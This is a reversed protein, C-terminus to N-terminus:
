AYDTPSPWQAPPLQEVPTGPRIAELLVAGKASALVAPVRGSPAFQRLMAVEEALAYADPALKMVSEGMPGTCSVSVSSVGSAFDAGTETALDTGIELEWEGALSTLREPLSNVWRQNVRGLRAFDAISQFRATIM